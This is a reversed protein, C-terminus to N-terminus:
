RRPSWLRSKPDYTWGRDRLLAREANLFSGPYEVLAGTRPDVSADRIPQGKGMERRLVSANQRWNAKPSGQDPLHKLLTHEGPGLEELDDLKGIVTRGGKAAKKSKALRIALKGARLGKGGPTVMAGAVVCRGARFNGFCDNIVAKTGSLEYLDGIAGTFGGGSGCGAMKPNSRCDDAWQKVEQQAIQIAEQVSAYDGDVAMAM